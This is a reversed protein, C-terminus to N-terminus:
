RTILEGVKTTVTKKTEQQLVGDDVHAKGSAM